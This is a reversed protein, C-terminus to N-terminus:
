ISTRRKELALLRSLIESIYGLTQNLDPYYGTPHACENRKSLLGQFAKMENKSILKAKKLADIIAYESFREKLDDLDRISWNPMASNVAHFSDAAAFRELYDVAASWAMVHGARYLKHEACRLAQKLMDDQEASFAKLKDYSISLTHARSQESAEHRSFVTHAEATFAKIRLLYSTPDM